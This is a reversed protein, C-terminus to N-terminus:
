VAAAKVPARRLRRIAGISGFGAIMMAWSAPEPVGGTIVPPVISFSGRTAFGGCTGPCTAGGTNRSTANEIFRVSDSYSGAENQYYFDPTIGYPLGRYLFTGLAPNTASAVINWTTVVGQANTSLRLGGLQAQPYASRITSTPKGASATWSLVSGTIVSNLLNAALPSAVTFEFKM